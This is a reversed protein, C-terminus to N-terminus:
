EHGGESHRRALAEPNARDRKRKFFEREVHHEAVFREVAERVVDPMVVAEVLNDGAGTFAEGEAPDATVTAVRYPWEGEAPSLVVWLSPSGAALNERYRATESRHLDVAQSGAYFLVSDDTERLVSWAALDPADPLIGVPRWLFEIWPSEAKSREVIVGVTIQSLPAPSM